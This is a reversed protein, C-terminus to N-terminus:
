GFLYFFAASLVALLASTRRTRVISLLLAIVVYSM